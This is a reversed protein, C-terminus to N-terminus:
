GPHSETDGREPTGQPDARRGGDNSSEDSELLIEVRVLWERLEAHGESLARVGARVSRVEERLAPM